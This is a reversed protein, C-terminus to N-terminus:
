RSATMTRSRCDLGGVVTDTSPTDFIINGSAIFSEVGGFGLAEFLSRLHDMKVTHGGVNLARLFAIYRPMPQLPRPYSARGFRTAEAAGLTLARPSEGSSTAIVWGSM